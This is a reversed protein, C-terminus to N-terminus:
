IALAEKSALGAPRYDKLGKGLFLVGIRGLGDPDTLSRIVRRDQSLSDIGLTRLLARQSTVGIVQLGAQHASTALTTFDVHASIDQEGLRQLPDSGLTHKYYTLLTGPKRSFLAEAPYGYDLIIALGHELRQALQHVWESLGLNVDAIAAEPPLLRLREFYAHAAAPADTEVWQFSEDICLERLQGNHVTLRHVPQADLVENAIVLHPAESIEWSVPLGALRQQQVVRLSPSSEEIAYEAGPLDTLLAHALAGSGAGLELIRFPGSRGLHEWLDLAQRALTRGFVPDLEPSTVFDGAAGFGRLRTYYGYEPHYLATEMVEAFSLPGRRVIRERLLREVPTV